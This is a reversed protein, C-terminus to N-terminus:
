SQHHPINRARWVREPSNLNDPAAGPGPRESLWVSVSGTHKTHSALRSLTVGSGSVLRLSWLGLFM